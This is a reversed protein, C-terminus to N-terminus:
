QNSLDDDKQQPPPTNSHSWYSKVEKILQQFKSIGLPKVVYSNAYHSYAKEVDREAASTTLVVVPISRLATDSKVAELVEMGDVRPLRLDLLILHPMLYAADAYPGRRFLYDLAAEGDALHTLDALIGNEEFSRKVLAAHAPNDEVLLVRLNEESNNM